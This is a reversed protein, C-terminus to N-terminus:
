AASCQPATDHRVDDPLKMYARPLLGFGSLAIPLLAHARMETSHAWSGVYDSVSACPDLQRIATYLAGSQSQQNIVIRDKTSWWIQLPVRSSAIRSAQLFASRAAYAGPATQPTGGVERSMMDRLEEGPIQRYRLALDTVSDMAAAGALLEPHRAVLLLTEQGGMSSGLAYIRSRDIRLWPLAKTAFGPMRALDDVQGPDGYSYLALTRGMGDPCIVAFRGVAPMADWYDANQLGNAARGHPSIVLPLPPNHEPGYWAPLIVYATRVLGNHATYHITWIRVAASTSADTRAAGVPAFAASVVTVLVALLVLRSARHQRPHTAVTTM